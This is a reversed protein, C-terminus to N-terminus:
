VSFPSGMQLSKLMDGIDPGRNKNASKIEKISLDTSATINRTYFTVREIEVDVVVIIMAYTNEFMKERISANALKGGLARGIAEAEIKSIVIINSASALSPNQSLLGFKKSNNVRRVIEQVTGTQDSILQKKEEDIMDQCFVLDKWFSIRKARWLHFRETLDQDVSKRTLLHVILSSKLLSVMLRINVPITVKTDKGEKDAYGISVNLMKGVSLNVSEALNISGGKDNELAPKKGLPLTHKYNELVLGDISEQSHRSGLLFGQADRDPNLADLTKIVEVDKVKTLIAVAQLYYAAFMNVLSQNIDPLYELNQLDESIITLPEVRTLKTLDSLSKDQAYSAYDMAKNVASTVGSVVELTTKVLEFQM